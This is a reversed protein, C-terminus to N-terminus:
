PFLKIKKNIERADISKSVEVKPNLGTSEILVFAVYGNIGKPDFHKGWMWIGDKLKVTSYTANFPRQGWIEECENNALYACLIQAQKKPLQKNGVKLHPIIIKEISDQLALSLSDSEYSEFAIDIAQKLNGEKANIQILNLKDVYMESAEFNSSWLLDGKLLLSLIISLVTVPLMFNFLKM